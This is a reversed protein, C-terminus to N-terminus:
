SARFRGFRVLNDLAKKDEDRAKRFEESEIGNSRAILKLKVSATNYAREAAENRLAIAELKLFEKALQYLENSYREVIWTIAWGIPGWGLLPLAAFLKGLAAKVLSGWVLEKFTDLAVEGISTM